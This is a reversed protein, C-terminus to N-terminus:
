FIWDVPRGSEVIGPLLALWSTPHRPDPAYTCVYGRKITAKLHRALVPHSRRVKDFAVKIAKTVSLRAGEGDLRSSRRAGDGSTALAAQLLETAQFERGPHRLLQQLYHLGRADTLQCAIGAFEISWRKGERRFLARESSAPLESSETSPSPAASSELLRGGGCGSGDHRDRRRARVGRAAHVRSRRRQDRPQHSFRPLAALANGAARGCAATRL